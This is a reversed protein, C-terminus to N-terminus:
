TLPARAYYRRDGPAVDERDDHLDVDESPHVESIKPSSPQWPVAPIDTCRDCSHGHYSHDIYWGGHDPTHDDLGVYGDGVCVGCTYGDVTRLTHCEPCPQLRADTAPDHLTTPASVTIETRTLLSTASGDRQRHDHCTPAVTGPWRRRM